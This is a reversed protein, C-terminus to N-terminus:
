VWLDCTSQATHSLYVKQPDRNNCGYEAARVKQVATDFTFPPLPPKSEM